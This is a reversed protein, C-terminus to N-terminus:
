RILSAIFNSFFKKRKEKKSISLLTVFYDSIAKRARKSEKIKNRKLVVPAQSIEVAYDTTEHCHTGGEGDMGNQFVLSQGPYLTLKNNIFASAYWRIAWSDIKGNIQDKLMATYPYSNNYDFDRCLKREEITQLLDQANSNFLDWGRKWTAWGWCDATKIFFTEPMKGKVPYMYGHISIVEHDSEYMELSENMFKLFYPATILDDEVVVVKGYENVVTTVGDIINKALGWNTSREIIRIKKFGKIKHIYERTEQVGIFSEENKSGDSFIILDSNAAERNALLAEVTQRTHRPRCYTFLVIPANM